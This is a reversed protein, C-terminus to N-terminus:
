LGAKVIRVAGRAIEQGHESEVRAYFAHAGGRAHEYPGYEAPDQGRPNMGRAIYVRGHYGQIEMRHSARLGGGKVKWVHTNIVAYRHAKLTADKIARGLVDTPKLAQIMRRNKAQLRQLGALKWVVRVAM